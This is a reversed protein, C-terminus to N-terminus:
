LGNEDLIRMLNRKRKQDMRLLAVYRRFEDTTGLAEHCARASLLLAAIRRYANDGTLRKLPGIARRYVALADAPRATISADALRLLQVEPVGDQAEAWAADLDGDDLLADILVPGGGWAWSARYALNSGAQARAARADERLLDLARSREASWTGSATTARRLAQYTALTRQSQFRERRLSLVDDDRGAAAYQGALYEVLQDDPRAADRVGREAWDVAEGGRGAEDLARAIRLHGLGRDDLDAAYFAVLADVDGDARLVAEMIYREQWGDPHGAYAAEARSRFAAAGAEGLLEAYDGIDPEIGSDGSLLLEALYDGLSAPDPPAAQCARLHADLLEEVALGVRGSPDDVSEYVETLLGLAERAIGIAEAAGGAATLEDIATAAESVDHAYAYAEGHELYGSGPLAILKRVARRVAAADANVSAARLEFRRRLDRDDDLLGLLEALLEEKSLSGLWSELAQRQAQAAELRRPLDDGIQLVSLAVAVCHKCFAGEQGQPCTCGGRLREGGFAVAVQYASNGYVTATIETSGIELDEVAGLYGLEREFSRSGAAQRIDAETFAPAEGMGGNLVGRHGMSVARDGSVDGIRTNRHVDQRRRSRPYACMVASCSSTATRAGSVPVTMLM